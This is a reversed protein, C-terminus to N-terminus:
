RGKPRVHVKGPVPVSKRPRPTVVAGKYRDRIERMFTTGLSESAHFKEAVDPPVDHYVWTGGGHFQIHLERTQDNYGSAAIHTSDRPTMEVAECRVCPLWTHRVYRGYRETREMSAM